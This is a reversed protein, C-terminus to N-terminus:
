PVQRRSLPIKMYIIPSPNILPLPVKLGILGICPKMPHRFEWWSLRNKSIAELGKLLLILRCTMMMMMMMTMMMMMMIM